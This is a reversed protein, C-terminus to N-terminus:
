VVHVLFVSAFLSLKTLVMVLWHKDRTGLCAVPLFSAQIPLVVVLYRSLNEM